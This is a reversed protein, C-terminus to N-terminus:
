SAQAPCQTTTVASATMYSSGRSDVCWHRGTISTLPASAAWAGAAAQCAVTGIGSRLSATGAGCVSAYSGGANTAIIEAEARMSALQSKVKSDAASSRASGLSTLVVGALIGIIAIVVLLEILTFGRQAIKKIM